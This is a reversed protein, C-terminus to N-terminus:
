GAPRSKAAHERILRPRVKSSGAQTAQNTLGETLIKVFNEAIAESSLAGGPKYWTSTWNLVGAIAFAALKPDSPAISGDDIGQQIFSRLRRDIERKYSRVEVRAEGSLEADDLRIVARGFDVTIIDLYSRIFAAVKELGTGGQAVIEDLSERILLCGWRYCELLIEEKNRFYHYLAPKTIRLKDAIDNLATRAYGRELFLLVATRLIAERKGDPDRKRDAFVRALISEKSVLDGSARSLRDGM